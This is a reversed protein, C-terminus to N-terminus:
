SRESQAPNLLFEIRRGLSACRVVGIEVGLDVTPAVLVQGVGPDLEEVGVQKKRGKLKGIMAAKRPRLDATTKTVVKEGLVEVQMRVLEVLGEKVGLAAPNRKTPVVLLHKRKRRKRRASRVGDKTKSM